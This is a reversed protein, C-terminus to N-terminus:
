AFILLLVILFLATVALMAVVLLLLPFQNKQRSRVLKRSSGTALMAVSRRVYIRIGFYLVLLAVLLTAGAPLIVNLPLIWFTATSSITNKKGQEGYVASLVAEYRGFGLGDEEWAIEYERTTGPFVAAQTENFNLLAVRKGFMNHIELPGAPKVLTNGENEIRTIFNVNTSGYIYQSTSFERMSASEDVEGSVRISVINAVEYGISAGSARMEPPEVSVIISGFHSGPTAEAPVELLFNFISEGGAPILLQDRDLTIWQSIEFGTKETGAQAFIPVGGDRVGVIDRKSLYYIQEMGSLNNLQVSFQRTEGPDIQEEITAPRIGVGATGSLEQAAVPQPIINGVLIAGLIVLAALSVRGVLSFAIM